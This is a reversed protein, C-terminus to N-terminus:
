YYEFVRGEKDYICPFGKTVMWKWSEQTHLLWMIHHVVILFDDVM